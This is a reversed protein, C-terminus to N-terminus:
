KKSKVDRIVKGDVSRVHLDTQPFPIEIGAKKIENNIELRLASEVELRHELGTWALLRFDLSSDGFGIFYASSEPKKHISENKESATLLIQLVKDPDTGYAVGVRIDMRRNQDSLTWNILENSILTGNPVIVEAGDYTRVVSSRIGIKKVVGLLSQVEITDGEKIPREFALILGSVLNNFINQLGFGIGVSFAGIIITLNSLQMGAAAAALLFGVSILTIRVLMIVTSPVGREVKVRTFIEEQLIARVIRSIFTSLWIVFIFLLINMLTFPAEGVHMERSLIGSIWDFLPQKFNFYALSMFIWSLVFVFKLLGWLKGFIYSFQKKIINSQNFLSSSLLLFVVSVAVHFGVYTSLVLFTSQVIASTLYEAISLIGVVTGIISLFILIMYVSAIAILSYHALAGKKIKSFRRHLVFRLLFIFTIGQTILLVIRSFFYQDYFLNYLKYLIYAGAFELLHRKYDIPIIDFAIRLVAYVAIIALLSSYTEPVEPILLRILYLGLLLAVEIPKHFIKNLYLSMMVTKGKLESADVSSRIWFVLVLLVIFLCAFIILRSAYKTTLLSTDDKFNSKFNGWQSIVVTSDEVTFSSWIAPMERRLVREGSLKHYEELDISFQDLKIQQSTIKDSQTLLFDIDGQLLRSVSDNQRIVGSIRKRIAEPTTEEDSGKLTLFWQYRNLELSKIDVQINSMPLNIDDQIKVLNNLLLFLTNNIVELERFNMEDIVVGVTDSFFTQTKSVLGDVEASIATRAEENLSNNGARSYLTFAVKSANNIENMPIPSIVNRISDVDQKKNANGLPILSQANLLLPLSMTLVLLYKLLTFLKRQM